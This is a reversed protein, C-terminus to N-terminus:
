AKTSEVIQEDQDYDSFYTHRSGDSDSEKILCYDVGNPVSLGYRENRYLIKISPLSLKARLDSIRAKVRDKLARPKREALIWGNPDSWVDLYLQTPRRLAGRNSMLYVLIRYPLEYVGVGNGNVYVEGYEDDVFLEYESKRERYFEVQRPYTLEIHSRFTLQYSPKSQKSDVCRGVLTTIVDYIDEDSYYETSKEVYDFAGLKMAPVATEVTGNATLIIVQVHPDLDKAEKLVNLGSDSREMLMDTVVVDFANRGLLEIAREESYAASAEYGHKKLSRVMSDTTDRMDDVVLVKAM